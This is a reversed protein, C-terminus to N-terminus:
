KKNVKRNEKKARNSNNINKAKNTKNVKKIKRIKKVKKKKQRKPCFCVYFLSYGLFIALFVFAFMLVSFSFSIPAGYIGFILTIFITFILSNSVIGLIYKLNFKRYQNAYLMGILFAIMQNIEIFFSLPLTFDKSYNLFLIFINLVILLISWLFNKSM